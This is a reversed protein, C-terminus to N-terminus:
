MVFLTLSIYGGGITHAASLLPPAHQLTLSSQQRPQFVHDRKIM